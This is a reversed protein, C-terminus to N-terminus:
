CNNNHYIELLVNDPIDNPENFRHIGSKILYTEWVEENAFVGQWECHIGDQGASVELYGILCEQGNAKQITRAAIGVIMPNFPSWDEELLDRTYGTRMTDTILDDEELGLCDRLESDCAGYLSREALRLGPDFQTAATESHTNEFVGFDNSFWDELLSMGAPAVGGNLAFDIAADRAPWLEPPVALIHCYKDEIGLPSM